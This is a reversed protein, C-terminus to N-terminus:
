LFSRPSLVRLGDGRPPRHHLRQLHPLDQEAAPADFVTNLMTLRRDEDTREM